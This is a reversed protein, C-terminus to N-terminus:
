LTSFSVSKLSVETEISTSLEPEILPLDMVTAAIHASIILVVKSLHLTFVSTKPKVVFCHFPPSLLFFHISSPLGSLGPLSFSMLCIINLDASVGQLLPCFFKPRMSRSPRKFSFTSPSAKIQACSLSALRCSCLFIKITIESPAGTSSLVREVLLFLKKSKCKLCTM